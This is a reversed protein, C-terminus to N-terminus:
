KFRSFLGRVAIGGLVASLVVCMVLSCSATVTQLEAYEELKVNMDLCYATQTENMVMVEERISELLETYDYSPTVPTEPTEPEGSSTEYNYVEKGNDDTISVIYFDKLTDNVLSANHSYWEEFDEPESCTQTVNIYYGAGYPYVKYQVTIQYTWDRYGGIPVPILSQEAVSAVSTEYIMDIKEFIDPETETEAETEAEVTMDPMATEEQAQETEQMEEAAPETEQMEELTQETEPIEELTQETEQIEETVTEQTEETETIMNSEDM